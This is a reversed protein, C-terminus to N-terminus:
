AEDGVAPMWAGAPTAFYPDATTPEDRGVAILAAFGVLLLVLAPIARRNV